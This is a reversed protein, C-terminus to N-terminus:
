LLTTTSLSSSKEMNVGNKTFDTQISPPTWERLKITMLCMESGNTSNYPTKTRVNAGFAKEIYPVYSQNIDILVLKMEYGFYKHISEKIEYIINQFMLLADPPTVGKNPFVHQLDYDRHFKCILSNISGISSVQCNGHPSQSYTLSFTLNPHRNRLSKSNYIHATAFTTNYFIDINEGEYVQQIYNKEMNESKKGM